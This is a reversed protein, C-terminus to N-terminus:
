ERKWGMGYLFLKTIPELPLGLYVTPLFGVKCGLEMAMEEIEEVEGVPILVSKDLNIKLGSSADFWALIWSLASLQEKRADVEELGGIFELQLLAGFIMGFSVLALLGIVFKMPAAM